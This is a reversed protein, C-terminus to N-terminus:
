VIDLTRLNASFGPLMGSQAYLYEAWSGIVVVHELLGHDYLLKIFKWFGRYQISDTM